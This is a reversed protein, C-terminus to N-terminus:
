ARTLRHTGSFPHTQPHRLLCSLSVTSVSDHLMNLPPTLYRRNRVFNFIDSIYGCLDAYRNQAAPALLAHQPLHRSVWKVGSWKTWSCFRRDWGHRAEVMSASIFAERRSFSWYDSKVAGPEPLLNWKTMGALSSSMPHSMRKWFPTESISNRTGTGCIACAHQFMFSYRCMCLYHLKPTQHFHLVGGIIFINYTCHLWIYHLFHITVYKRVRPLLSPQHRSGRDACRNWLKRRKRM